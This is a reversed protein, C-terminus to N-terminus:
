LLKQAAKKLGLQVKSQIGLPILVAQDTAYSETWKFKYDEEGRLFDFIINKELIAQQIAHAMIQTGPSYRQWFQDFGSQYFSVTGNYQFCHLAAISTKGVNLTYSRLFGAELFITALKTHFEIMKQNTFLGENDKRQQSATHLEVLITIFEEVEEKETIKKFNIMSPYDKELRREFRGLNYRMSKGYSQKLTAWDDPLTLYPCINKSIQMQGNTQELLQLLTNSGSMMGDLSIKQWHTRSSWIKDTFLHSISMEFDKHIIFDLHDPAADGNGIFSLTKEQLGLNLTDKIILPAIGLLQNTDEQRCIIMWLANNEHFCDWWTSVWEWTMFISDCSSYELLENWENKLELLQEHTELINISTKTTNTM